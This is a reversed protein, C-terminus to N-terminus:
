EHTPLKSANQSWERSHSEEKNQSFSDAWPVSFSM